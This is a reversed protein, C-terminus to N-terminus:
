ASLAFIGDIGLKAIKEIKSSPAIALVKIDFLYRDALKQLKAALPLDALAYKAKASALLIFDRINNVKVAIAIDVSAYFELDSEKFDLAVLSGSPTKNIDAISKVFVVAKEADIAKNVGILIM